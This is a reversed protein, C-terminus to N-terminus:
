PTEHLTDPVILLIHEYNHISYVNLFFKPTSEHKMVAKTRSTETREQHLPKQYIDACQSDICNHQLNAICILDISAVVVENDTLTLCPLHLSPHLTDAFTFLQLAIHEATQCDDSSVLIIFTLFVLRVKGDAPHRFIVHGELCVHEGQCTVVSKGLHHTVGPRDTRLIKACRTTKWPVVDKQATKGAATPTTEIKGSGIHLNTITISHCLSDNSQSSIPMSCGSNPIGLLRGQEPHEDCYGLVMEGGRVWTKVTPDYWYRGTTIHKMIDQWSFTKCSDRSPAQHNSYICSLHFVHNFLEYRETSFVIAPGFRHIFAPLHVLFHFKPKSILISPMCQSTINLFNVLYVETDVIKTHWILVVLEGIVTWADLVTPPIPDHIIFPMVQTLSKFHKGILGGKYHCIYDTNLCPANLRDKDISN